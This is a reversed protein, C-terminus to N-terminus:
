QSFIRPLRLRPPRSRVAAGPLSRTVSMSSLSPSSSGPSLVDDSVRSCAAPLRMGNNRLRCLRPRCCDSLGSFCDSGFVASASASRRDASLASRGVTKCPVFSVAFLMPSSLGDSFIWISWVAAARGALPAVAGAFVGFTMAPVDACSAAMDTPEAVSSATVPSLVAM